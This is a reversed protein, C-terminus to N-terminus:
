STAIDHSAFLTQNEGQSPGCNRQCSESIISPQPTTQSVVVALRTTGFKVFERLDDTDLDCLLENNKVKQRGYGGLQSSFDCVGFDLNSGFTLLELIPKDIVGRWNKNRGM